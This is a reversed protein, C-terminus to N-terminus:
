NGIVQLLAAVASAGVATGALGGLVAARTRRERVRATYAARFAEREEPTLARLREAVRAPLERGSEGATVVAGTVVGAGFGAYLALPNHPREGELLAYGGLGLLVGGLFGGVAYGATSARGAAARGSDAAAPQAALAPACLALLVALLAAVRIPSRTM